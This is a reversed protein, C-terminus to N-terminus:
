PNQDMYANTVRSAEQLAAQVSVQGHVAKLLEAAALPMVERVQPHLIDYHMYKAEDMFVQVWARDAADFYDPAIDKRVPLFATAALFERVYPPKLSFALFQTALEAQQGKPVVWGALSGFGVRKKGQWVPGVALWPAAKAKSNRVNSQAYQNFFAVKGQEFPGKGEAGARLTVFLDVLFELADRAPPQDFAVRKGDASFLEGGAQWLLPNFWSNLTSKSTDVGVGFVDTGDPSRKTLRVAGDKVEDWTMPPRAIGERSLLEPNYVSTNVSQRHPVFYTEGKYVGNDLIGPLYVGMDGFTGQKVARTIPALLGKEIYMPMFDLNLHLLDPPTGGAAAVIFGQGRFDGAPQVQDITVKPNAQRFGEIASQPISQTTYSWVTLNGSLDTAPPPQTTGSGPGCAAAAVGVVGSALAAGAAIM